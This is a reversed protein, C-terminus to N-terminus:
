NKVILVPIKLLRQDVLPDDLSPLIGAIVEKVIHWCSGLATAGSPLYQTKLLYHLASNSLLRAELDNDYDGLIFRRCIVDRIEPTELLWQCYGRAVSLPVPLGGSLSGQGKTRIVEM